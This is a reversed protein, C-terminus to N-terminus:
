NLSSLILYVEQFSLAPVPDTSIWNSYQPLRTILETAPPVFLFLPQKESPNTVLIQFPASSYGYVQIIGRAKNNLVLNNNETMQLWTSLSASGIVVAQWQDNIKAVKLMCRNSNNVMVPFEWEDAVRISQNPKGPNCLIFVPYPTGLQAITLEDASLFGLNALGTIAANKVTSSTYNVVVPKYSLTAVTEQSSGSGCATLFLLPLLHLLKMNM